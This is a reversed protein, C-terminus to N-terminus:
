HLLVVTTETQGVIQHTDMSVALAQGAIAGRYGALGRASGVGWRNTRSLKERRQGKGNVLQSRKDIVDKEIRRKTCLQNDSDKYYCSRELKPPGLYTDALLHLLVSDLRVRNLIRLRQKIRPM